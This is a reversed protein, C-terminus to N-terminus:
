FPLFNRPDFLSRFRQQQLTGTLQFQLLYNLPNLMKITQQVGNTTGVINGFLDVGVLMDLAHDQLQLTGSANIKAQPGDISLSSFDLQAEGISFVGHMRNLNFSTFGLPTGQLVKSLPGLLQISGLADDNVIFSGYGNLQYLDDAPGNAHLNVAVRADERGQHPSSEPATELSRELDASTPISQLSKKYDADKLSLQLHLQAPQSKDTSDIDIAGTGTGNAFGFTLERMATIRRAADLRFRLYDLPVRAYQIPGKSNATLHVFSKDKFQPYLAENFQAGNLEVQVLQEASFREITKAITPNVLKQASQLPLEANIAYRISAPARIADRFSTFQLDGRLFGEGSRAHLQHIESYSRRGRVILSGADIPVARYSLDKGQITGYYLDTRFPSSGGHIRFDGHVKSNSTFRFNDNFLNRWWRPMLANYEIPIISGYLGTQYAQNELDYHLHLDLHQQGRDFSFQKLELQQQAYSGRTRLIDFAVGALQPKHAQAHFEARSLVFGNEFHLKLDCYPASEFRYDPLHQQLEPPLLQLLDVTGQTHAHGNLQQLDLTAQFRSTGGYGGMAGALTVTPFLHPDISIQPAHLNFQRFELYETAVDFAPWAGQTITQWDLAPLQGVISGAKLAYHPASFNELTFSLPETCELRAEHVQLKGQVHLNNGSSGAYKLKPSYLHADIQLAKGDESHLDVYLSPSDLLAAYTKAKLATALSSYIQKLLQAQKQPPDIPAGTLPWQLSGRIRIAEHTAVFHELNLAAETPSFRFGIKQLIPTRVGNPAYVAPMYLTGNTLVLHRLGLQPRVGDFLRARAVAGDAELLASAHDTSHLSVKHLELDGNLRLHIAETQFYFGDVAQKHLWPNVWRSPLSLKGYALLCGIAFCQAALLVLLLARLWQESVRRRSTSRHPKPM